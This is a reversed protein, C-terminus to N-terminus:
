FINHSNAHFNCVEQCVMDISNGVSHRNTKQVFMAAIFPPAKELKDM